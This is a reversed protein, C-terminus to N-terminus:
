ATGDAVEKLRKQFGNLFISLEKSKRVWVSVNEEGLGAVVMGLDLDKLGRCLGNIESLGDTMRSSAAEAMQKQRKTTVEYPATKVNRIGRDPRGAPTIGLARQYSRVTKRSLGLKRAIEQQSHDLSLEEIERARETRTAETIATM